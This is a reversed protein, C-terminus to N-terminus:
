VKIQISCKGDFLGDSSNSDLIKSIDTQSSQDHMVHVPVETEEENEEENETKRIDEISPNKVTMSGWTLKDEQIVGENAM